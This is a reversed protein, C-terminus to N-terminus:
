FSKRHGNTIKEESLAAAISEVGVPGGDISFDVVIIRPGPKPVLFHPISRKLVTIFFDSFLFSIISASPSFIKHVSSERMRPFSLATNVGCTPSAALNNFVVVCFM